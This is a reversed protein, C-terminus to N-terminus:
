LVMQSARLINDRSGEMPNVLNFEVPKLIGLSEMQRVFRLNAQNSRDFTERREQTNIEQQVREAVTM